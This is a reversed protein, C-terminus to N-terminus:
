KLDHKKKYKSVFVEVVGIISLTFIMSVYAVGIALGFSLAAEESVFVKMIDYDM